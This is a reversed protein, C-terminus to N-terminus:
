NIWGRAYRLEFFSQNVRIGDANSIVANEATTPFFAFRTLTVDVRFILADAPEFTYLKSSQTARKLITGGFVRM